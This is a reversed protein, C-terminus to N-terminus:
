FGGCLGCKACSPNSFAYVPRMLLLQACSANRVLRIPLYVGLALSLVGFLISVVFCWPSVAQAGLYFSTMVLGGAIGAPFGLASMYVAELTLLRSLDRTTGGLTKLIGLSKKRGVFAVSLVCSIGSLAIVAAGVSVIHWPLFAEMAAKRIMAAGPGTVRAEAKWIMTETVATVTFSAAIALATSISVMLAVAKSTKLRRVAITRLLSAPVPPVSPEQKGTVATM